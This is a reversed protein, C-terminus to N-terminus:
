AQVEDPVEDGFHSAVKARMAAIMPTEGRGRGVRGGVMNAIDNPGTSWTRTRASVTASWKSEESWGACPGTHIHIEHPADLFIQDRHIIPGAIFWTCSHYPQWWDDFGPTLAICTEQEVRVGNVKAGAPIIKATMGEARAVWLDLLAGGLADVKM